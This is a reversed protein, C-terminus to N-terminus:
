GGARGGNLRFPPLRGRRFRTREQRRLKPLSLSAGSRPFRSRRGGSAPIGAKLGMGHFEPAPIVHSTRLCNRSKNDQRPFQVRHRERAAHRAHRRRAQRDRRIQMIKRYAATEIAIVIDAFAVFARIRWAAYTGYDAKRPVRKPACTGYQGKHSRPIRMAESFVLHPFKVKRDLTAM